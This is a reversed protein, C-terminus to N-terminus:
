ASSRQEAKTEQCARTKVPKADPVVEGNADALNELQTKFIYESPSLWCIRKDPNDLALQFGVFSRGTGTPHIIAVKGTQAMMTLANGYATRNHQYLEVAKVELWM